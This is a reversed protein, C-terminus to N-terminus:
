PDGIAAFGTRKQSSQGEKVSVSAVRGSVKPVVDVAMNAEITASVDETQIIDGVKVETVSVPRAQEKAEEKKEGCSAALVSTSLLLVALWIMSERKM